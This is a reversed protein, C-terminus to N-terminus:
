VNVMQIELFDLNVIVNKEDSYNVANTIEMQIKVHKLANEDAKMNKMKMM